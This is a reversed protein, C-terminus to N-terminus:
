GRNPYWRKQHPITGAVSEGHKPTSMVFEIEDTEVTFTGTTRPQYSITLVAIGISGDITAVSSTFCDTIRRGGSLPHGLLTATEGPKAKFTYNVRVELREPFDSIVQLSSVTGSVMDEPPQDGRGSKGIQNIAVILGAVATILAGVGTLIGPVTTWFSQKEQKKM